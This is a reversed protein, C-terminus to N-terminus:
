VLQDGTRQQRLRYRCRNRDAHTLDAAAQGRDGHRRHDQGSNETRDHDGQQESFQLNFVAHRQANGQACRRM